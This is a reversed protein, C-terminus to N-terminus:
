TLSNKGVESCFSHTDEIHGLASIAIKINPNSNVLAIEKYCQCPNVYMVSSSSSVRNPPGIANDPLDSSTSGLKSIWSLYLHGLYFLVVLLYMLKLKLMVKIRDAILVRHFCPLALVALM